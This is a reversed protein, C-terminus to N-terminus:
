TAWSEGSNLLPTFPWDDNAGPGHGMHLGPLPTISSLRPGVGIGAPAHLALSGATTTGYQLTEDKIPFGAKKLVCVSLCFDRCDEFAARVEYSQSRVRVTLQQYEREAGVADALARPDHLLDSLRISLMKRLACHVTLLLSDRGTGMSRQGDLTLTIGGAFHAAEYVRTEVGDRVELRGLRCASVPTPPPSMPQLAPLPPRNM